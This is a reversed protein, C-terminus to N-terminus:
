IAAAIASISDGAIIKAIKKAFRALDETECVFCDIFNPLNSWSDNVSPAWNSRSPAMNIPIRDPGSPWFTIAGNETSRKLPISANKKSSIPKILAFLKASKLPLGRTKNKYAKRAGKHWEKRANATHRRKLTSSPFVIKSMTSAALAEYM